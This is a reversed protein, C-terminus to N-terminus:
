FIFNLITGVMLASILMILTSKFMDKIGLEKILVVFTAVCPFYMALVVCAIVLQGASLNLPALMGVAVDKRLFGIILASVAEKPLGLLGTVVPATVAAVWDIIGLSYLISMFLVGLLVMPIATGLFERVRMWLKKAVANWYPVRYPSIEVFIEPSEGKLVRNLLMGLGIWVLFLSGFVATLQLPQKGLLGIIMAIQATCPVAIAMLTAAIFRERETDLVRTALAGPVNCGIGLIMPISAFGHLGVKHMLSDVLIALRPLYGLDELIGLVLYFSFAYPLVMAIPVYLGTTLLGFSQVFDIEGSILKGILVDHFFGSSGLLSSLNMILPIWLGEFLPDFLHEILNEGMFRIAKFILYITVLAIPLGTLPKVTLDGITELFTHHRHTLSQCQRIIEGIRVWREQRARTIPERSSAKELSSVLEKIGEGTLGVTPIIPVGLLKQLKQPDITIGRHKADDWMNLVVVVPKGREILQLTLNLNRELNTADVVDVVLDAEQLMKTAVKEARSTPELTYTGPLDTLETKQGKFRMTGRTFEVTTGPYNSVIVNVGTLRSFIVSKGVNPNGMLVIKM